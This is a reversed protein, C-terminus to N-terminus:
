SNWKISCGMSHKQRESPKEGKLLADIASGVESFAGRYALKREEDYVFIDPTCKANYAKGVQQTEDYLYPFEMGHKKAYESMKEFSDEPYDPNANSNIGIFQAETKENALKVLDDWMAKVFPCHNCMFVIVLVKTSKFEDLTHTKGDIGKLSFDHAALGLAVM